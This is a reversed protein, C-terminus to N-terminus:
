RVICKVKNSHECKPCITRAEDKLGAGKDINAHHYCFIIDCETCIYLPQETRCNEIYCIPTESM